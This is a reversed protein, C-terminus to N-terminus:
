QPYALVVHGMREFRYGFPELIAICATDTQIETGPHVHIDISFFPKHNSITQLSGNLVHDEFGEVDIKVVIRTANELELQTRIADLTTVPVTYRMQGDFDLPENNIALRSAEPLYPFAGTNDEPLEVFESSGAENSLAYDLVTVNRVGNREITAELYERARRSPEFAVIRVRGDFSLAFPVSMAGTAAGIDLFIAGDCLESKMKESHGTEVWLEVDGNPQTSICHRMTMLTYRPLVVEVGNLRVRLWSDSTSASIADVCGRAMARWGLEQMLNEVESDSLNEIDGIGGPKAFAFTNLYSYISQRIKPHEENCM